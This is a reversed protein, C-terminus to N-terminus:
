KVTQSEIYHKIQSESRESVTTACYSPNWLHGGYLSSKIEPHKIFLWRATNGKLLKLMDSVSLSPTCDVLLHVHEPMVEMTDIVFNYDDAVQQLFRKCDDALADTLVPKRYKTCWVIHYKLSFVSGRGHALGSIDTKRQNNM